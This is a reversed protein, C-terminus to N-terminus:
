AGALKPTLIWQLTGHPRTEAASIDIRVLASKKLDLQLDSCKLLYAIFQSLQPEHGSVLVSAADSGAVEKWARDPPSSPLLTKTTVLKRQCNLVEAAMEATQLARKYPSTLILVPSVGARRARQLVAHLKQKGATTLAREADSHGERKEEAIAHRL